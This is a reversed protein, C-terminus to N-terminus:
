STTNAGVAMSVAGINGASTESSVERDIGEHGDAKASNAHEMNWARVQMCMGELTTYIGKYGLGGEEVSKRADGDDAIVHCSAVTFLTPQLQAIDPPLKPLLKGIVSPFAHQALSYAEILYSFLLMPLPPVLQVECPSVSITSIIKYIDGFAIAPNPDTIIYAKGAAKPSRSLLAAELQLHSISVNKSYVFNQVVHPVWTPIKSLNMYTGLTHDYRNGYVGNAPRIIGTKFTTSNANIVIKEAAAKTVAYNGFYEEHSRLPASTDVHGVTQVFRRPWRAWPLILFEAPRLGISGSSTAIFVDAGSSKAANLVNITGNVNVASCRYLLSKARESPNIVAATHIVTLPLQAVSEPWPKDFAENTSAESTIDARAFQVKSAAKNDLYDKRVPARFDILRISEPSQGRALLHLIICGGVLGSGGVVIYRRELKPPIHASDDIPSKLVKAYTAKIEEETWRHPSIKLVEDPTGAMARNLRWLYFSVFAVLIGAGILAYM